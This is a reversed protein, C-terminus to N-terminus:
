FVEGTKWNSDISGVKSAWVEMFRGKGTVPLSLSAAHHMAWRETVRSQGKDKKDVCSNIGTGRLCVSHEVTCPICSALVLDFESVSSAFFIYDMIRLM